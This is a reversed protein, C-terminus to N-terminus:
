VIGNVQIHRIAKKDCTTTNFARKVIGWLGDGALESYQPFAGAKRRVSEGIM